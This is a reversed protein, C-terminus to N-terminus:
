PERNEETISSDAKRGTEGELALTVLAAAGLVQLHIFGLGVLTVVPWAWATLSGGRVGGLAAVVMLGGALLVVGALLGLSGLLAKRLRSHGRMKARLADSRRRLWLGYAMWVLFSVGAQLWLM